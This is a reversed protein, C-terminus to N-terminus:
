RCGKGSQTFRRGRTSEWDTFEQLLPKVSAVLGGPSGLFRIEVDDFVGTACHSSTTSHQLHATVPKKGPTKPPQKPITPICTPIPPLPTDLTLRSLFPHISARVSPVDMNCMELQEPDAFKRTNSFRPKTNSRSNDCNAIKSHEPPHFNHVNGDM